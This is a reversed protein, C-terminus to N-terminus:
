IKGKVEDEPSEEFVENNNSFERGLMIKTIRIVTHEEPNLENTYLKIAVLKVVQADDKYLGVPNKDEDYTLSDLVARGHKDIDGVGKATPLPRKVTKPRYIYTLIEVIYGIENNDIYFEDHYPAIIERVKKRFEDIAKKNQHITSTGLKGNKRKFAFSKTSGQTPCHGPVDITVSKM